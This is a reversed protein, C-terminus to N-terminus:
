TVNTLLISGRPKWCCLNGTILVRSLYSDTGGEIDGQWKAPTRKFARSPQLVFEWDDANIGILWKDPNTEAPLNADTLFYDLVVEVNDITFSNFGYKVAMPGPTYKLSADVEQKLKLYLDPGCVFMLSSVDNEDEAHEMMKVICRRILYISIQYATAQVSANSAFDGLDAGQAWDNLDASIDRSVNGYLEAADDHALAQYISQFDTGSDTAASGYFQKYLGIRTGRFADKARQRAIDVPANKGGRNFLEEDADHSIPLQAFKQSFVFRDLNSSRGGPLPTGMAYTQFLGDVESTKVTQRIKEGSEPRMRKRDYLKAMLPMKLLVQDKVGEKWYNQTSHEIQANVSAPIATSAM